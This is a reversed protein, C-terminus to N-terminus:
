LVGPVRADPRAWVPHWTEQNEGCQLRALWAATEPLPLRDPLPLCAPNVYLHRACGICGLELMKAARGGITVPRFEMAPLTRVLLAVPWYPARPPFFPLRGPCTGPPSPTSATKKAGREYCWARIGLV